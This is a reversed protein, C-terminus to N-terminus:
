KLLKFIAILLLILTTNKIDESTVTYIPSVIKGIFTDDSERGSIKQEILTLMCKDSSMKWHLITCLLVMVYLFLFLKNDTMFPTLIVYFIFILHILKITYLAVTSKTNYFCCVILLCLLFFLVFSVICWSDM